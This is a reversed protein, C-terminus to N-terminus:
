IKRCTCREVLTPILLKHTYESITGNEIIELLLKTSSRALQPTPHDITTLRINPLAAYDINDFGLVSLQNPIEIGAEDAAQMVGLAVTDSAAFIATCSLPESFLQQALHYGSELTSSSGTNIVTDVHMGYERASLLFGRHRIVHTRSDPRHGLYVVSHHGLQHLYKAAMQGGAFNDTSVSNFWMPSDKEMYNGILVSPIQSSYGKLYDMLQLNSNPLLIGDVRQGALFDFLSDMQDLDSDCCLLVQYGQERAYMEINLCLASQFPNSINPSIIAIVHSRSSSLSRALLNARYGSKRCLDLIRERTEPNIEPANNLARSVTTVSVGALKAIDKITVRNM